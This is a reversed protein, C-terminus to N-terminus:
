SARRQNRYLSIKNGENIAEFQHRPNSASEHGSDFGFRFHRGHVKQSLVGIEGNGVNIM